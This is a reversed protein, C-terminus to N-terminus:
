EGGLHRNLVSRSYDDNPQDRFSRWCDRMEREAELAATIAASTERMARQCDDSSPAPITQLMANFGKAIVEVPTPM